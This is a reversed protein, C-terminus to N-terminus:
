VIVRAHSLQQPGDTRTSLKLASTHYNIFMEEGIWKRIKFKRQELEVQQEIQQGFIM